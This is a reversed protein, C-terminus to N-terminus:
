DNICTERLIRNSFFAGGRRLPLNKVRSYDLSNDPSATAPYQIQPLSFLDAVRPPSLKRYFEAYLLKVRVVRLYSDYKRKRFSFVKKFSLIRFKEIM